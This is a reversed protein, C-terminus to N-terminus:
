FKYTLTIGGVVGFNQFPKYHSDGTLKAHEAHKNARIAGKGVWHFSVSPTLILDKEKTIFWPTSLQIWWAQSGNACAGHYDQFYDGTASMNFSLVGALKVDEPTGIIPAKFTVSPEFWFGKVGDMSYRVPVAIEMWQFPTYTPKLFLEHVTSHTDNAFHKAMIGLMGGHVFDYGVGINFTEDVTYRAEIAAAFENEINLEPITTGAYPGTHPGFKAGGYLEHGSMIYKYLFTTHVSWDTNTDFDLKLAFFGAGDGMTAARTPLYGRGTYATSVGATFSGSLISKDNIPAVQVGPLQETTMPASAVAHATTNATPITYPSKASAVSFSALAALLILSKKM